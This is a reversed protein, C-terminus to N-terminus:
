AAGAAALRETVRKDAAAETVGLEEILRAVVSSCGKISEKDIGEHHGSLLRVWLRRARLYSTYTRFSIREKRLLELMLSWTDVDVPEKYLGGIKRTSLGIKHCGEVTLAELQLYLLAFQRFDDGGAMLAKVRSEESQGRVRAVRNQLSWFLFFVGASVLFFAILQLFVPNTMVTRETAKDVLDPMEGAAAM